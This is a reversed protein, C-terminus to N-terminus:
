YRVIQNKIEDYSISAILIMYGYFEQSPQTSSYSVAVHDRQRNGVTANLDGSLKTIFVEPVKRMKPFHVGSRQLSRGSADYSVSNFHVLNYHQLCMAERNQVPYATRKYRGLYIDYLGKNDIPVPVIFPGTKPAKIEGLIVDDKTVTYLAEPKYQGADIVHGMETNSLKMWMDYGYGGVPVKSWDGNFNRINVPNSLDNNICLNPSTLGSLLEDLGISVVRHKFGVIKLPWCTSEALSGSGIWEASREDKAIVDLRYAQRDASTFSMTLRWKGKFKLFTDKEVGSKGYSFDNHNIGHHIEIREFEDWTKIGTPLTFNGTNINRVGLELIVVEDYVTEEIHSGFFNNPGSIM